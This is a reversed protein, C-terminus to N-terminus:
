DNTILRSHDYISEYLQINNLINQIKKPYIELIKILNRKKLFVKLEEPTPLPMYRLGEDFLKVAFRFVGEKTFALLKVSRGDARKKNKFSKKIESVNNSFDIALIGKLALDTKIISHEVSFSIKKSNKNNFSLSIKDGDLNTKIGFEELVKQHINENNKEILLTDKKTINDNNIKLEEEYALFVNDPILGKIFVPAYTVPNDFLNELINKLCLSYYNCVYKPVFGKSKKLIVKLEKNIKDLIYEELDDKLLDIEHSSMKLLDTLESLTYKEKKIELLQSISNIASRFVPKPKGLILKCFTYYINLQKAIEKQNSTVHRFFPFKHANINDFHNLGLLELVLFRMYSIYNIKLELLCLSSDQKIFRIKRDLFAKNNKELLFVISKAIQKDKDKDILGQFYTVNEFFMENLELENILKEYQRNVLNEISEINNIIEKILIKRDPNISFKFKTKDIEFNRMFDLVKSKIRKFESLDSIINEIIEKYDTSKIKENNFFGNLIQSLIGLHDISLYLEKLLTNKKIKELLNYFLQTNLQDNFLINFCRVGIKKHLGKLTGYKEVIMVRKVNTDKNPNESIEVRYFGQAAKINTSSDQLFFEDKTFVVIDISHNYNFFNDLRNPDSIVNASNTKINKALSLTNTDEKESSLKNENNHKKNVATSKHVKMKMPKRHKVPRPKELAKENNEIKNKNAPKSFDILLYCTELYKGLNIALDNYKEIQESNNSFFKQIKNKVNAKSCDVTDFFLSYIKEYFEYNVSIEKNNRIINNINFVLEYYSFYNHTTKLSDDNINYSEKFYNNLYDLLLKLHSFVSVIKDNVLILKYDNEESSSCKKNFLIYEKMLLKLYEFVKENLDKNAKITDLKLNVGCLVENTLLLFKFYTKEQEFENISEIQKFQHQITKSINLINQQLDINKITELLPLSSKLIEDPNESLIKKYENLLKLIRKKNDGQCFNQIERKAADIDHMLSYIYGSKESEKLNEYITEFQRLSKILNFFAALFSNNKLINSFAVLETLLVPKKQFEIVFCIDLFLKKILEIKQKTSDIYIQFYDITEDLNHAKRSLFILLEENVTKITKEFSISLNKSFDNIIQFYDNITQTEDFETINILSQFSIDLNSLIESILGEVKQDISNVKKEIASFNRLLSNKLEKLWEINISITSTDFEMTSIRVNSINANLKKNLESHLLNYFNAYNLDFNDMTEYISKNKRWLGMMATGFPLKGLFNVRKYIKEKGFFLVSLNERNILKKIENVCFLKDKLNETGYEGEIKPLELPNELLKVFV